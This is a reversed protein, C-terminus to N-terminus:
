APRSLRGALWTELVLLVLASLILWRWLKQRNELELAQLHRQQPGRSATEKAPGTQIPVGLRELTELPLPATQSEAPTLNVAFEMAPTLSAVTYLGPQDTKAFSESPLVPIELGAPTHVTLTRAGTQPHVPVSDGVAFQSQRTNLGGSFELLSYLFPVFKSSLALQSDAPHWGSTLVFLNGLGAPIQLLAPDGTDFRAVSHASPLNNTDLRRYKWFHIKTFDSFRPDSFPALLPHSFDLQGLMTYQKVTAEETQVVGTELLGTLAAGDAATRLLLLATKGAALFQHLLPLNQPGPNGAVIIFRAQDLQSRPLSQEPTCAHIVTKHRPTDQFARHLYYLLGGPDTAADPGIFLLSQTEPQVPVFYLRNDFEEDDGSLLLHSLATQNTPLPVLIVRSQGPPVYVPLDPQDLPQDQRTVWGIKFQERNSQSSNSVRIKLTPEADPKLPGIQEPLVQLSANCPHRAPVTELVVQIGPPWDWGQLGDLHAGEQLDTILIIQRPNPLDPPGLEEFTDLAALLAQGLRTDAWGPQLKQLAQQALPLRDPPPLASWQDFRVVPQVQRAFTLVAMQDAPGTDKLWSEAKALAQPWLNDRRMSASTDLLLVFQKGAQNAPTTAHPRQLFPRAFGFALLGLVLCRLLLLLLNELRSRRTLRPPSPLLFMISSFPIRDRTTRRILHFLIPLAVALAGLLFLPALFSM